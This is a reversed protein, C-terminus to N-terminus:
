TEEAEDEEKAYRIQGKRKMDQMITWVWYHSRGMSRGIERLSKGAGHLALIKKRTLIDKDRTKVYVEKCIPYDKRNWTKVPSPQSFNHINWLKWFMRLSNAAYYPIRQVGERWVTLENVSFGLRISYDSLSLGSSKWLMKFETPKMEDIFRDYSVRKPNIQIVGKLKEKKKRM